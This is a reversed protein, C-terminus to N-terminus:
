ALFTIVFALYLRLLEVLFIAWFTLPSVIAPEALKLLKPPIDDPGASKNPKIPKLRRWVTDECVTIDTVSPVSGTRDSQQPFYCNARGLRTGINAFFDNILNAKETDNVALSGDERKLPGIRNRRVPNTAEAILNWYATASKAEALKDNFYQAKAIKIQSTIENRVKKYRAYIEQDKTSVARKFLKFRLNMKRRIENNIWPSSQSRIKVRKMPAHLDCINKFLKDWAWLVDGKEEFVQAVQFPAAIIDARFQDAQFQKYNTVNIVNPPPRKLKLNLTAYILSHDSLGLPLVGKRNILNQKTTVILDILTSSGPTIRTPKNVINQMDFLQFLTLLRRTKPHIESETKSDIGLLDCNFDGLLIITDSKM